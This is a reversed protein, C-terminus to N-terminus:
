YGAATSLSLHNLLTGGYSVFAYHVREIPAPQGRSRSLSEMWTRIYIRDSPGEVWILGNAQVLDGSMVGLDDLIRHADPTRRM